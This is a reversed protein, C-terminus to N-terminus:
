RPDSEFTHFPAQVVVVVVLVVDECAVIVIFGVISRRFGCQHPPTFQFVIQLAQQFRAFQCTASDYQSADQTFPEMLSAVADGDDTLLLLLLLVLQDRLAGHRIEACMDQLPYLLLSPFQFGLDQVPM